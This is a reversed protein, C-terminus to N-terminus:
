DCIQEFIGFRERILPNKMPEFIFSNKDEITVRYSVDLYKELYYWTFSEAFDEVWNQSGYLSAFPTTSLNRYIYIARSKDQEPGLGYAYLETRLPFDYKELPQQYNVWVADTFVTKAPSKKNQLEPVPFPTIQNYFDYVHSAEHFLTHILAYYDGSCEVTIAIESDENFSSNERFGIWDSVSRRLIEPNFFLVIFNNGQKDTEHIYMGGGKFKDIFFIAIVKESMVIRYKEPLLQLYAAFLSKEEPAPTYSSYSDTKDSDNLMSIVDASAAQIRNELPLSLDIDKTFFSVGKFTKSSNAGCGIFFFAILFYLLLKKMNKQLALM